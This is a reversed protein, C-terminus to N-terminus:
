TPVGPFMLSGPGTYKWVVSGTDQDLAYLCGDKNLSYVMGYAAATGSCWYGDITEPNYTWSIDGSNADFAYFVNDHTGGRFFKGDAYTGSFLMPGTTDTDWVVEG